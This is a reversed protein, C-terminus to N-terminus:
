MTLYYNVMVYITMDLQVCYTVILRPSHSKSTDHDKPQHRMSTFKIGFGISRSVNVVEHWTPSWTPQKM